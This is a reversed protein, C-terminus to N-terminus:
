NKEKLSLAIRKLEPDAKLVRVTVVQGVRVVKRPDSVYRDALESVHVLGDQHVGIDVFAGFNTVNTVVGELRMGPVLDTIERVTESFSPAKFASRPDRGPKELERLIDEITPLGAEDSVFHEKDLSGLLRSNGIMLEVTAGLSAALNEVFGYREPHVASDDLPNRAGPIRLFGAAQEFTKAGLGPVSKLEERSGFASYVSAGSENVMVCLPRKGAPFSALVDRVFSETERGATGNGIAILEIRNVAIMDRLTEAAERTRNEPEHPFIARYELFRGTRDIAAVKCGTRFGPDIGLVALQGAPPALLLDRLNDGFVKFAEAEARARLEKRVETETAPALLRDLGDKVMERLLPAAASKPNRVFRAELYAAAKERPFELELRLVKEREGRLMALLRHSPLTAARERYDHYMEFKTKQGDFEKRVIATLFGEKVALRRLTKRAEADDTIEEALIDGAGHLTKEPTDFGKEPNIFGAAEAALDARPDELNQLRRALPELGADRAMSARTVRKPKFPLYLDELETKSVTALIASALEPTLKGQSRVSDLITERREDLETFYAYRHSIDRVQIEDLNGTREKRYRSIFPVTAGENLLAMVSEIQGPQIALERSIQKTIDM